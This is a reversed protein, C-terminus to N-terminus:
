AVAKPKGQEAECALAMCELVRGYEHAAKIREARLLEHKYNERKLAALHDQARALYRQMQETLENKGQPIHMAVSNLLDESTDMQEHLNYEEASAGELFALATTRPELYAIKAEHWLARALHKATRAWREAALREGNRFARFAAKYILLLEANTKQTFPREGKDSHLTTQAEIVCNYARKLEHEANEPSHEHIQTPKANAQTM